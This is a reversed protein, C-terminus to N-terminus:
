PEDADLGPILLHHDPWDYRPRLAVIRGGTISIYIWGEPSVAVALPQQPYIGFGLESLHLYQTGLLASPRSLPHLGAARERLRLPSIITAGLPNDHEDFNIMIVKYGVFDVQSPQGSLVVILTDKSALCCIM